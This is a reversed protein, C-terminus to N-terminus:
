HVFSLVGYVAVVIGLKDWEDPFGEPIEILKYNNLITLTVIPWIVERLRWRVNFGGEFHVLISAVFYTWELSALMFKM